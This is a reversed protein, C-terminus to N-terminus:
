FPNDINWVDGSLANAAGQLTWTFLALQQRFRAENFLQPQSRLLALHETLASLTHDGRGHLVHRFPTEVVSVYQSLFYYEVRMIRTNYLRAMREDQIDTDKIAEQLTKAARSYDGRARYVWQPSLGRVQLEASLQNLQASLRLAATSYCTVDLPLILDHTLKLVMLGVLEGVTRGVVGLRGQLLEQVREASDLQTNVFPYVRGEEHFRLEMAPVGGFATFSYAGSNLYLPKVIRNRWGGQAEALSLISQGSHKPHDVQKIAGEILDALLPSTYASLADDGMVAQDLSFYAVAKLHLMSLYGELWETAGVNGFEGADWSVFLLSRRPYFGNQLMTSFTRALELLVATGVGAKVAGPGWADRQAGMIIYQDPETKGEISAFINNLLVPSMSNYVAMKVQRGGVSFEPGVVCRVYPLRGQWGRPCAVGVLQSLLKSAVNASIPQAPILPLGSSQTPPFQTHNFSPFGPTFPDGSGLHVHESIVANGHLGLRRPDQPIDAPDPYILIGVLGAEQAHWVKEAFSVGGGVRAMAISDNLAVGLARLQEFDEQRAYNVYVVGGTATGTASYACYDASDLSIEELEVGEADVLWLANRQTRSPFQLTAYHSDTWTHDLHLKQFSQLIESALANGEASGTPHTARSVRRVTSEIKEENLYKKLMDRLEGLYMAGGGASQDPGAPDEVPVMEGEEVCLRCMGRFSVYGLLFATTFILLGILTLYLAAKRRDVQHRLMMATIDNTLGVESSDESRPQVLKMEVRTKRERAGGGEEVGEDAQAGGGPSGTLLRRVPDAM